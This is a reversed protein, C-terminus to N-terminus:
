IILLDTNDDTGKLCAKMLKIIDHKRQPDRAFLKTTAIDTITVAVDHFRVERRAKM